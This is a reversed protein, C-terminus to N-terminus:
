LNGGLRGPVEKLCKVDRAGLERGVSSPDTGSVTVPCTTSLGPGPIPSSRRRGPDEGRCFSCAWSGDGTEGKPHPHGLLLCGTDRVKVAGRRPPASEDSDGGSDTGSRAGLVCRSVGM